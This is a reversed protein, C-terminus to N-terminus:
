WKHRKVRAFVSLLFLISRVQAREVNVNSENEQYFCLTGEIRIVDVSLLQPFMEGELAGVNHSFITCGFSDGIARMTKDANQTGPNSPVAGYYTITENERNIVFSTYGWTYEWEVAINCNSVDCVIGDKTMLYIDVEIDSVEGFSNETFVFSEPRVEFYEQWNDLTIEVTEYQPETTTTGKEGGCAVLSFCMVAALLIAIMKKM